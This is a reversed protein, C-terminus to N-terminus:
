LLMSVQPYMVLGDTSTMYGWTDINNYNAKAPDREATIFWVILKDGIVGIRPDRVDKLTGPTYITLPGGWVKTSKPRKYVDVRGNQFHSSGSRCSYFDADPTEAFTGFSNYRSNNAIVQLNKNLEPLDPTIGRSGEIRKRETESIIGSYIGVFNISGVLPIVGNGGAGVEMAYTANLTSPAAATKTQTHALSRNVYMNLNDTGAVKYTLVLCFERNAAAKNLAVANIVPGPTTSTANHILYTIANNRSQSDRDDFSLAVGRNTNTGASSGLLGYITNPSNVAGARGKIIITYDTTGDHLKKWVAANTNRLSLFGSGTFQIVKRGNETAVNWSTAGNPTWANGQPDTYGTNAGFTMAEADIVGLPTLSVSSIPFTEIPGIVNTEADGQKSFIYKGVDALTSNYTDGQAGSILVPNTKAADNARYWEITAM